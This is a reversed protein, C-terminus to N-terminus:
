GSSLFISAENNPQFPKLFHDSRTFEEGSITQNEISVITQLVNMKLRKVFLIWSIIKKEPFL